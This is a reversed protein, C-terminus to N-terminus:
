NKGAAKSLRNMLALGIGEMDVKQCYIKEIGIEDCKRFFDFLHKAYNEKTSVRKSKAIRRVIEFGIFGIKTTSISELSIESPSKVLIIEAEPSYHKYKMGPSKAIGNKPIKEMEVKSFIKELDKISVSGPRLIKPFKGTCDVVTSEIGHESNKGWLICDVKGNLDANVHKWSTPSPSGSINASPAAVPTGCYEIFKRTSIDSPMRIAITDLGATVLDSIILNKKLIITIPGPFFNEIIKKAIPTMKQILLNIQSVDSIHVILPNDAPRNKIKFIKKVADEDFVNAGLGYVTETPFGVLKGNKIFTAAVKESHTIKTKM